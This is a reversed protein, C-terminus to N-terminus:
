EAYEAESKVINNGHTRCYTVFTTINLMMRKTNLGPRRNIWARRPGCYLRSRQRIMAESVRTFEMARGATKIYLGCELAMSYNRSCQYVGSSQSVFDREVTFVQTPCGGFGGACAIIASPSKPIDTVRASLRIDSILKTRDNQSQCKSTNVFTAAGIQCWFTLSSNHLRHTCCAPNISVIPAREKLCVFTSISGIMDLVKHM